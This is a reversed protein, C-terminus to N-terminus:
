GETPADEDGDDFLGLEDLTGRLLPPIQEVLESLRHITEQRKGLEGSKLYLYGTGFIVCGHGGGQAPYITRQVAVIRARSYQGDAFWEVDFWEILDLQVTTKFDKLVKM